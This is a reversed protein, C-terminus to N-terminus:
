WCKIFELDSECEEDSGTKTLFTLKLYSFMPLDINLVIITDLVWIRNM